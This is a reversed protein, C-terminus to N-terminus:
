RLGALRAHRADRQARIFESVNLSSKTPGHHVPIGHKRIIEPEDDTPESRTRDVIAGMQPELTPRLSIGNASAEILFQCGPKLNFEERLSAPLRLRGAKDMKVIMNPGLRRRQLPEDINM